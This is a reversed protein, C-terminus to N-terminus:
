TWLSKRIQILRIMMKEDEDDYEKEINRLTDMIKKFDKSQSMTMFNFHYSQDNQNEEQKNYLETWGSLDHPDPRNPRINKWWNYLEYIEKANIAQLTPKGYESDLYHVYDENTLGMEWTLYELGAESSRWPTLSLRKKHYWPIHYQNDKHMWVTMWAKEIEVFNVLEDFLCHLIRIDLEHYSGSPLMSTLAHSKTVFRNYFYARLDNLRDPIYYIIDQIINLLEDAIWYRIPHAKKANTRWEGWEQIGLASPKKVGRIYDALSSNSFYSIRM